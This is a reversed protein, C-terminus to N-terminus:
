TSKLNSDLYDIASTAPFSARVKVEAEEKKVGAPDLFNRAVISKCTYKEVVSAEEVAGAVRRGFRHPAEEFATASIFLCFCCSSLNITCILLAARPKTWM